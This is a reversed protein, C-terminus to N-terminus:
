GNVFKVDRVKQAGYREQLRLLIDRKWRRELDYRVAAQLVAVQLVGRRLSVPRSHKALFDGVTSTWDAAVEEHNLRDEIGARKLIRGVVDGVKREYGTLDPPLYVGRWDALVKRQMRRRANEASKATKRHTPEQDAM